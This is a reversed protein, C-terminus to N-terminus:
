FKVEFKDKVNDGLEYDLVRVTVIKGYKEVYSKGKPNYNLGPATINANALLWASFYRFRHLQMSIMLFTFKGLWDKEAYETETTKSFHYQKGFFVIGAMPIFASILYVLSPLFTSPKTSYDGQQRIFDEHDNYDYSPGV